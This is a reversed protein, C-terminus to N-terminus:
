DSASRLREIQQQFFMKFGERALAKGEEFSRIAADVMGANAQVNGLTFFVNSSKGSVEMELELIRLGAEVHGTRALREGLGILSGASFDYVFGGYYQDRLENYQAVAADVGDREITKTLIDGLMEPKNNTRHCTMCTVEIRESKKVGLDILQALHTENIGRVMEIMVRAKRKTQKEDSPFDFKSLDPGEGVHCHQCRVGLASAFGRMVGGLRAGKVDAPLVKLNEPEEPWSFEAAWGFSASVSVGALVALTSLRQRLDTASMHTGMGATDDNSRGPSSGNWKLLSVRDCGGSRLVRKTGHMDAHPGDTASHGM